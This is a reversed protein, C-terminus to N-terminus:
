SQNIYARKKLMVRTEQVPKKDKTCASCAQTRENVFQITQQIEHGVCLVRRM